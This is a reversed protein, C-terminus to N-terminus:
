GQQVFEETKSDIARTSDGGGFVMYTESFHGARQFHYDMGDISVLVEEDGIAVERTTSLGFESCGTILFVVTSLFCIGIKTPVKM